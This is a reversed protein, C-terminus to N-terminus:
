TIRRAKVWLFEETVDAWGLRADKDTAEIRAPRGIATRHESSLANAVTYRNGYKVKGLTYTIKFVRTDPM